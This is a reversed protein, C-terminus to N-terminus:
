DHRQGPIAGWERLSALIGYTISGAIGPAVRDWDEPYNGFWSWHPQWAGDEGQRALEFPIQQKIIDALGDALPNQPHPAATMPKICYGGWEDPNTEILADVHQHLAALVAGRQPDPLNPSEALRVCCLLEHGEVERRSQLCDITQDLWASAEDGRSWRYFYGVLEAGPNLILADANIKDPDHHWWPAHPHDNVSAPTALWTGKDADRTAALYELAGTVLPDDAPLDMDVAFQLGISTATASSAPLLYDPELGHGFGGDENQYQVLAARAQDLPTTGFRVGALAQEIPRGHRAIYALARDLNISTLTDTTM